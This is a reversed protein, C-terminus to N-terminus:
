MAMAQWSGECSMQGVTFSKFRSLQLVPWSPCSDEMLNYTSVGLTAHFVNLFISVCTFVFGRIIISGNGAYKGKKALHFRVLIESYSLQFGFCFTHESNM